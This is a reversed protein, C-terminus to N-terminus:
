KKWALMKWRATFPKDKHSMSRLLGIADTCNNDAKTMPEREHNKAVASTTPADLMMKARMPSLVGEKRLAHHLCGDTIIKKTIVM